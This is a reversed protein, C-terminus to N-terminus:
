VSGRFAIDPLGCATLYEGSGKCSPCIRNHRGQSFFTRLCMLCTRTTLRPVASPTVGSAGTHPSTSAPPRERPATNAARERRSSVGPPRGPRARRPLGLRVARTRVASVTRGLAQGIDEPTMDARAWLTRLQADQEQWSLSSGDDEDPSSPPTAGLSFVSEVM